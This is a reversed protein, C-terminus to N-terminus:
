RFRRRTRGKPPPKNWERKWTETDGKAIPKCLEIHETFSNAKACCEFVHEETIHVDGCMEHRTYQLVVGKDDSPHVGPYNLGPKNKRIFEAMEAITM